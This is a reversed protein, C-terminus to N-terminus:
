INCMKGTRKRLLQALDKYSRRLSLGCINSANAIKRQSMRLGYLKCAIAVSAGAVCSPKRSCLGEKYYMKSVKKATECLEENLNMEKCCEEVLLHYRDLFNLKKGEENRHIEDNKTQISDGKKKWCNRIFM